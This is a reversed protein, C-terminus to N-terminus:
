VFAVEPLIRYESYELTKDSENRFGYHIGPPVIFQNGTEFRLSVRSRYSLESEDAIFITGAGNFIRVSSVRRKDQEVASESYPELVYRSATVFSDALIFRHGGSVKDPMIPEFHRNPSMIDVLRNNQPLTLERLRTNAYDRRFHAPISKGHNQDYLQDVMDTSVTAFEELVCGIVTHVIGLESVIFVDGPVPAIKHKDYLENPEGALWRDCSCKDYFTLWDEYDCMFVFGGPMVELIHFVETKHMLHRQFSFGERENHMFISYGLPNSAKISYPKYKLMFGLNKQFAAIKRADSGSCPSAFAQRLVSKLISELQEVKGIPLDSIFYEHLAPLIELRYQIIENKYESNRPRELYSKILSTLKNQKPV